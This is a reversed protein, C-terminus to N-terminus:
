KRWAKAAERDRRKQELAVGIAFSLAATYGKWYEYEAVDVRFNLDRQKKAEKREKWLTELNM